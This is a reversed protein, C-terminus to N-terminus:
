PGVALSVWTLFSILLNGVLPLRKLQNSYWWLSFATLFNVLGIPWWLMLGLAVGTLSFTTHLVMAWRRKFTKGVVVEDPRNVFDIKIDYYDNIIYGAAAILFTSTAIVVMVPDTLYRLQEGPGGILFCAALYQAGLLIILNPLRILRFFGKWSFTPEPM